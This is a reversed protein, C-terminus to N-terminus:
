KNPMEIKLKIHKCKQLSLLQSFFKMDSKLHSIIAELLRSLPILEGNKWLMENGREKKM